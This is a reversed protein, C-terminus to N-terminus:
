QNSRQSSPPVLGKLRLYTVMNGYHEDTHATNLSMVTLKPLEMQGFLKVKEAGSADSLGAYAKDCYAMADKMAQVIDAKTTKNKEVDPMTKDGSVFGCFEYQGDAVHAALQGFSRITDVPKFSYNEEPMEEAAKIAMGMIYHYIGKEGGTLPNASTAKPATDAALAFLACFTSLCILQLAKKM